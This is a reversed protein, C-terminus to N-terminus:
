YMNFIKDPVKMCYDQHSLSHYLVLYSAVYMMFVYTYNEKLSEIVINAWM